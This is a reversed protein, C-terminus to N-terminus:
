PYDFFKLPKVKDDIDTDLMNHRSFGVSGGTFTVYFLCTLCAEGPFVAASLRPIRNSFLSYM